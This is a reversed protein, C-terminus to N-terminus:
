GVPGHSVFAVHGRGHCAALGLALASAFLAAPPWSIGPLVIVYRPCVWQQAQRCIRLSIQQAPPVTVKRKGTSRGAVNEDPRWGCVTHCTVPPLAVPHSGTAYPCFPERGHLTIKVLEASRANIGPILTHSPTKGAEERPIMDSGSTTAVARTLVAHRCSSWLIMRDTVYM